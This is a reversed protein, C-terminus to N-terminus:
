PHPQEQPPAIRDLVKRGEYTFLFEFGSRLKALEKHTRYSGLASIALLAIFVVLAFMHVKIDRVQEEFLQSTSIFLKQYNDRLETDRTESSIAQEHTHLQERGKFEADEISTRLAITLWVLVFIVAVRLGIDIMRWGSAFPHLSWRRNLDSLQERLAEDLKPFEATECPTCINRGEPVPANCRSCNPM